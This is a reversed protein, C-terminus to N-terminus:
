GESHKFCIGGSYSSKWVLKYPFIASHLSYWHWGILGILMLFFFFFFYFLDLFFFFLGTKGVLIIWLIWGFVIRNWDIKEFATIISKFPKQHLYKLTIYLGLTAFLFITILLIFGVNPHINMINFDVTQEWEELEELGINPNSAIKQQIVLLMPGQGLMYAFLIIVMGILYLYPEQRGVWGSKFFDRKM